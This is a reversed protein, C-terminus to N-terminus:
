VPGNIVGFQLGTPDGHHACTWRDQVPDHKCKMRGKRPLFHYHSAERAQVEITFSWGEWFLGFCSLSDDGIARGRFIGKQPKHKRFRNLAGALPRSERRIRRLRSYPKERLSVVDWVYLTKKSEWELGALLSHNQIYDFISFNPLHNKVKKRAHLMLM